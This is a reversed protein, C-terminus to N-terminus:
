LSTCNTNTVLGGTITLFCERSAISYNGTIGSNLGVGFGGTANITGNALISGNVHLTSLPNSTGIGLYGGYPQISLNYYAKSTQSRQQILGNGNSLSGFFTGYEGNYSGLLASANTVTIGNLIPDATPSTTVFRNTPNSTGIGLNGNYLLTMRLQTQNTYWRYSTTQLRKGTSFDFNGTVGEYMQIYANDLYNSGGSIKGDATGITLSSPRFTGGVTLGGTTRLAGFFVSEAAGNLSYFNFGGTSSNYLEIYMNNWGYIRTSPKSKLYLDGDASLNLLTKPSANLDIGNGTANSYYFLFSGKDMSIIQGAVGSELYKYGGNYYLNNSISSVSSSYSQQLFDTVKLSPASSSGSIELQNTGLDVNSTAGTYPVYSTNTSNWESKLLFISNFLGQIWDKLTTPTYGQFYDTNNVNISYNAGTVISAVPKCNGYISCDDYSVQSSTFSILLIALFFVLIQKKM